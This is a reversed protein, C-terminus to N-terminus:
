RKSAFRQVRWWARKWWPAIIITDFEYDLNKGEEFMKLLDNLDKKDM